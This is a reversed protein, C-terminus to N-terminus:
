RRLEFKFLPIGGFENAKKYCIEKLDKLPYEQGAQLQIKVDSGEQTFYVIGNNQVEGIFISRFFHKWEPEIEQVQEYFFYTQM